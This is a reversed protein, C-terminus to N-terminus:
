KIGHSLLNHIHCIGKVKGSGSSVVLSTIKKQNMISLAKAALENKDIEAIFHENRRYWSNKHEIKFNFKNILRKIIESYKNM